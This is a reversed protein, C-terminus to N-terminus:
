RVRRLLEKIDQRMEDVKKVDEARQTELTTVKREVPRVTEVAVSRSVAAGIIGATFIISLLVSIIKAARDM